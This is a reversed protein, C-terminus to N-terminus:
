TMELEAVGHVTAHWAERDKVTKGLKGLNMDMCAGRDMPNELCSDQLLNGHRGGPSRKLVPISGLDRVNCASEKGDLGGPFGKYANSNVINVIEWLKSLTMDVSDTIGDLWRM